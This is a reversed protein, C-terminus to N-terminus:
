GRWPPLGWGPGGVGRDGVEQKNIASQLLQVVDKGEVDSCSFGKSWSLLEAQPSCVASGSAEAVPGAGSGASSTSPLLRHRPLTTGSVKNLQTQKCSFPFVFGLPLYEETSTVGALFQRVCQAIFDFLQLAVAPTVPQEEKGLVWATPPLRSGWCRGPARRLRGPAPCGLLLWGRGHGGRVAEGPGQMSDGPIDFIKDTVHPSQNGDGLLTMLLIRVHSQCLEVVLM